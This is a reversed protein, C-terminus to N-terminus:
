HCSFFLISCTGEMGQEGNVVPLASHAASSIGRGRSPCSPWARARSRGGRGLHVPRGQSGASESIGERQQAADRSSAPPPVLLLLLVEKGGSRRASSLLRRPLRRLITQETVTVASSLLRTLFPLQPVERATWHRLRRAGLAPPGPKIGPRSVLDWMRAAALSGALYVFIKKLFAASRRPPVETCHPMQSGEGCPDSESCLTALHSPLLPVQVRRLAVPFAKRFRHNPLPSHLGGLFGRPLPMAPGSLLPAPTLFCPPWSPLPRHKWSPPRM